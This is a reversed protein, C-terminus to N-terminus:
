KRNGFLRGLKSGKSTKATAEQKAGGAHGVMVKGANQQQSKNRIFLGDRQPQQPQAPATAQQLAPDESERTM